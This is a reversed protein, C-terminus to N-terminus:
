ENQLFKAFDSMKIQKKFIPIEYDLEWEPTKIERGDSFLEVVKEIACSSLILIFAFIGFLRKM